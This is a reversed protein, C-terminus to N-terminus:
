DSVLQSPVIRKFASLELTISLHRALTRYDEADKDGLMKLTAARTELREAIADVLQAWHPDEKDVIQDVLEDFEFNRM